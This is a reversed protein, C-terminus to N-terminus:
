RASEHRPVRDLYLTQTPYAFEIGERELRRMLELNIEQQIDMYVNYDPKLTFYVVEFDLSSAGFKHFHCRDFRALEHDTIIARVHEVVRALQDPTTQYTVGFTFVIRREQMRKYNRIRSSLLDSNGFILQEGGLSRVRTTKLGVKEITGMETGVIIFDGVVFPKDLTITLSAFLDGLINQVALAVAIGGVGLGAILATVDIGFNELALLLIAAYAVLLFLWRFTGMAGAIAPDAGGEAIARRRLWLAGAWDVLVGAWSILQIAIGVIAGKWLMAWALVLTSASVESFLSLVMLGAVCGVLLPTTFPIRRLLKHALARPSGDPAAALARFGRATATLLGFVVFACAAALVASAWPVTGEPLNLFTAM